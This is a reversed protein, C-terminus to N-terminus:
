LPQRGDIDAWLSVYHVMYGGTAISKESDVTYKDVQRQGTTVIWM